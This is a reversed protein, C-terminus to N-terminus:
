LSCTLQGKHTQKLTFQGSIPTHGAAGPQWAKPTQRNPTWDRGTLLYFSKCSFCLFPTLM